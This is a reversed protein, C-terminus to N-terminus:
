HQESIMLGDVLQDVSHQMLTASATQEAVDSGSKMAFRVNAMALAPADNVGDGVMAVVKGQQRLTEIYAAKDRPSCNGRATKIGVQQAVYDVVSQQDGSMM